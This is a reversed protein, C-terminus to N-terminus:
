EYIAINQIDANGLVYTGRRRDGVGGVMAQAVAAAAVPAFSAASVGPFVKAIADTAGAALSEGFRRERREGLLVGPRYVRVSEFGLGRVYGELQGKVRPYLLLSRADAGASSVLGYHRYGRRLAARAFAANVGFDVLRFRSASGAQRRTTGLCSLLVDGAVLGDAVVGAMEELMGPREYVDAFYDLEPFRHWRVEAPLSQPRPSRAYVNVVEVGDRRALRRVLHGGVLGTAGIVTVTSAM